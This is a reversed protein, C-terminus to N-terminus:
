DHGRWQNSFTNENNNYWQGRSSNVRHLLMDLVTTEFPNRNTSTSLGRERLLRAGLAQFFIIMKGRGWFKM